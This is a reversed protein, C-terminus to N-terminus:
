RRAMASRRRALVDDYIAHVRAAALRWRYREDVLRRNYSGFARRLNTDDLLAIIRRTFDEVNDGRCVFGGQGDVVLEPLAGRDSTVVPLGCSMAEGVALGFGELKSPFVFVDALNYYAVKEHESVRGAFLVRDALELQKARRQLAAAASGAGAILLIAAPRMTAVRRWVDLLFALNKRPKMGGLFLVVPRQGLRHRERLAGSDVGPTFREDIGNRVVEIRERPVGLTDILQHRSFESVTIARDSREIVRREILPNLRSADLHHHHVVVPVDLRYRRRAVLAAPGIFRLSHVRLIDFPRAEYVRRILPPLLLAAVPWRLGRGIPLRHVTWNAVDDPVRKHRALMLDIELGRAGLHRLLEREYTEGGSTTDPDVGCHPSCIRV